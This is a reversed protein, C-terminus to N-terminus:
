KKQDEVQDKKEEQKEKKAEENKEEKGLNIRIFPESSGTHYQCIRNGNEDIFLSPQFLIRPFHQPDDEVRLGKERALYLVKSKAGEWWANQLEQQLEGGCISPDRAAEIAGISLSLYCSIFLINRM